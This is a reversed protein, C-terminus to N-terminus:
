SVTFTHVIVTETSPTFKVIGVTYMGLGKFNSVYKDNNPEHILYDIGKYTFLVYYRIRCHNGIYTRIVEKIHVTNGDIDSPLDKIHYHNMVDQWVRRDCEYNFGLVRNM